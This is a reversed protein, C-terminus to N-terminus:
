IKMDIKREIKNFFFEKEKPICFEDCMDYMDYM